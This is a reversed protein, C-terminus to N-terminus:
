GVYGDLVKAAMLGLCGLNGMGPGHELGALAPMHLGPPFGSASSLSLDSGIALEVAERTGALAKEGGRPAPGVLARAAPVGVLGLRTWPDFGIANVLYHASLPRAAKRDYSVALTLMDEVSDWDVSSLHGQEYVVRDSRDISAKNRMSVVGAETRNILKRRHELSLRGWDSPDTFWRREAHGDGRPFLTGMPSVSIVRSDTERFREALWAVITGASGGDGAVAVEVRDDGTFLNRAPWFTAADFVRGPPVAVATSITRAEGNGTLVVGDVVLERSRGDKEYDVRWKDKFPSVRDVRAIVPDTKARDIVWDLYDAFIAHTPHDRERDVWDAIRGTEVLYAGWSFRSHLLPAISGTPGFAATDAYPFGVDKEGPTCLTIFGSSYKGRGGWASAVCDQELIILEPVKEKGLADRLVAARAAIAAAKPGAGVIALRKRM